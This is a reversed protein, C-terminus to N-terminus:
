TYNIDDKSRADFETIKKASELHESVYLVHILISSDDIHMYAQNIVYVNHIHTHTHTHARARTHTHIYIYGYM